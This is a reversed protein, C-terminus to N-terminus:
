GGLQVALQSYRGHMSEETGAQKVYLTTKEPPLSRVRCCRGADGAKGIRLGAAGAALRADHLRM